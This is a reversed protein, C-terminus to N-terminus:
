RQRDVLYSFSIFLNMTMWGVQTAYMQVCFNKRRRRVLKIHGGRDILFNEPKLDRHIFGIAHLAEVALIMEALFFRAHDEGLAGCNDLLTRMDGGPVFEMAFYLRTQDQFAYLLQVLWPSLGKNILVERETLIGHERHKDVISAKNVTKLAVVEDTDKKKALYVKGYGGSGLLCIKKFDEPKLKTRRQRLIDSEEKSFKEWWLAEEEPSLNKEKL